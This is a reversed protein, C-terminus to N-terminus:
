RKFSLARYASPLKPMVIPNKLIIKIEESLMNENKGSMFKKFPNTSNQSTESGSDVAPTAHESSPLSTDTKTPESHSEDKLSAKKSRKKSLSKVDSKRDFL